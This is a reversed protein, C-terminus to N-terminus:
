APPMELPLKSQPPGQPQEIILPPNGLSASKKILEVDFTNFMLLGADLATAVHIADKPKIGHDWVMDRASEAVRRTVNRVHIFPNKFFAVVKDREAKPLPLKGRLNLVEAVTLASTVILVNGNKAEELVAACQKEKDPESLLHGLFCDSDWYRRDLSM